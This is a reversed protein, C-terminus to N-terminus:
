SVAVILRDISNHKRFDKLYCDTCKNYMDFKKQSEDVDGYVKWTGVCKACKAKNQIFGLVDVPPYGLFLGIEHPFDSSDNIRQRLKMICREASDLPYEMESLIDAALSDSLDRKLFDPRYMYLLARGNQYKLFILRVNNKVLKSNVQRISSILNKKDTKYSFLNATKLGALTPSCQAILTEKFMKLVGHVIKNSKRKIYAM